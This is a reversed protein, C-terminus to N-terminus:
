CFDHHWRVCLAMRDLRRMGLEDVRRIAERTAQTTEVPAMVADRPPARGVGVFAQRAFFSAAVADAQRVSRRPV